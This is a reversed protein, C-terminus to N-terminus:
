NNSDVQIQINNIDPFASKLTKTVSIQFKKMSSNSLQKFEESLKILVNGNELKYVALLTMNPKVFSSNDIVYQVYDDYDIFKQNDVFIQTEEIKDTKSNYVFININSEEKNKTNEVNVINKIPSIENKFFSFISVIVIAIVLCITLIYKKM